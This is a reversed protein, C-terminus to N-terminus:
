APLSDSDPSDKNAVIGYPRHRRYQPNSRLSEEKVGTVPILRLVNVNLAVIVQRLEPKFGHSQLCASPETSGINSADPFKNLVVSLNQQDHDEVVDACFM